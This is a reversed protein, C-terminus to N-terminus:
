LNGWWYIYSKRCAKFIFWIPWFSPFKDNWGLLILVFFFTFANLSCSRSRRLSRWGGVFLRDYRSRRQNWFVANWTWSSKTIQLNSVSFLQLSDLISRISYIFNKFFNSLKLVLIRIRAYAKGVSDRIFFVIFIDNLISKYNWNWLFFKRWIFKKNYDNILITLNHIKNPVHPLRSWPTDTNDCYYRIPNCPWSIGIVASNEKAPLLNKM